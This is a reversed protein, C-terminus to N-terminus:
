PWRPPTRSARPRTGPPGALGLAARRGGTSLARMHHPMFRRATSPWGTAWEREGPSASRRARPARGRRRTTRRPSRRDRGLLERSRTRAIGALPSRRRWRSSGGCPPPAPADGVLARGRRASIPAALVSLKSPSAIRASLVSAGPSSAARGAGGAPSRASTSPAPPEARATTQASARSPACPPPRSGSRRARRPAPALTARPSPSPAPCSRPRHAVLPAAGALWSSITLQVATPCALRRPGRRAAGARRRPARVRGLDHDVEDVRAALGLQDPAGARARRSATSPISTSTRWPASDSRIQVPLSGGSSTIRSAAACPTPPPRSRCVRCASATLSDTILGGAALASRSSTSARRPARVAARRRLVEVRALVLVELHDHAPQSRAHVALLRSSPAPPRGRCERRRPAGSTSRSRDGLRPGRPLGPGGAAGLFPEPRTSASCRSPSSRRGATRWNAGSSFRNGSTKRSATAGCGTM